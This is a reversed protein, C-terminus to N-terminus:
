YRATFHDTGAEILPTPRLFLHAATHIVRQCVSTRNRAGSPSSKAVLDM